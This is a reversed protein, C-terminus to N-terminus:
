YKWFEEGLSDEDPLNYFRIAPTNILDNEAVSQM